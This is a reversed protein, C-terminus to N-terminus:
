SGAEKTKALYRFITRPDIGLARAAQTRNGEFHTLVRTVYSMRFEEVADNLQQVVLKDEFGVDAPEHEV